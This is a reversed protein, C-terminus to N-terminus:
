GRVRQWLDLLVAALGAAALPGVPIGGLVAVGVITGLVLGVMVEPRAELLALGLSCM